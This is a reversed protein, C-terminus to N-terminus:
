RHNAATFKRLQREMIYTNEFPQHPWEGALSHQNSSMYNTFGHVCKGFSHCVFANTQRFPSKHITCCFRVLMPSHRCECETANGRTNTFQAFTLPHKNAGIVTHHNTQECEGHTSPLCNKVFGNLLCVLNASSHKNPIHTRPKIPVKLWNQSWRNHILDALLLM